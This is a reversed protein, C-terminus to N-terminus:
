MEQRLAALKKILSYRCIAKGQCMLLTGGTVNAMYLFM